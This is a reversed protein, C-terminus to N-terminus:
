SSPAAWLSAVLATAGVNRAVFMTASVLGAAATPESGGGGGSVVKTAGGTAPAVSYVIAWPSLKVVMPLFNLTETLARVSALGPMSGVLNFTPWFIWTGAGMADAAEVPLPVVTVSVEFPSCM